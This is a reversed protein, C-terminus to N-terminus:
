AKPICAAPAIRAPSFCPRVIHEFGKGAAVLVPTAGDCRAMDADTREDQLLIDVIGAHGFQAAIVLPSVNDEAAQNPDAGAALLARVVEIHGNEAALYLPTVRDRRSINVDAGADNVLAHVIDLHGFESAILLPTM